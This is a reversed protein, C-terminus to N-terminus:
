PPVPAPPLPSCTKEQSREFHISTGATNPYDTIELHREVTVVYWSWWEARDMSMDRKRTPLTPTLASSLRSEVWRM